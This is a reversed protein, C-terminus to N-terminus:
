YMDSKLLRLKKIRDIEAESLPNHDAYLRSLRCFEREKFDPLRNIQNHRVNLYYPVYQLSEIDTLQNYRLTLYYVSVDKLNDISRIANHSLNLETINKSAALDTLNEEALGCYNLLIEDLVRPIPLIPGNNKVAIRYSELRSVQKGMLVRIPATDFYPAKYVFLTDLEMLESLFNWDKCTSDMIHLEKLNWLNKVFDLDEADTLIHLAQIESFQSLEERWGDPLRNINLGVNPLAVNHHHGQWPCMWVTPVGIEKDTIIFGEIKNRYKLAADIQGQIYPSINM